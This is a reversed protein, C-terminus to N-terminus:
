GILRKALGIAGGVVAIGVPILMLENGSTTMTSVINTMWGTFATFLSNLTDMSGRVVEGEM